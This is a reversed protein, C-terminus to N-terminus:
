RLSPTLRTLKATLTKDAFGEQKVTATIQYEGANKYPGEPSYTVTASEPLGSVEVTYEAGDYEVESDLFTLGVIERAGCSAIAFISLCM